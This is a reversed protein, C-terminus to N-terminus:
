TSYSRQPMTILSQAFYACTQLQGQSDTQLLVVGIGYKSVDSSIVFESNRGCNPRKLVPATTMKMKKKEKQFTTNEIDTWRSFTVNKKTLEYM